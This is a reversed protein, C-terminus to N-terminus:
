QSALIRHSEFKLALWMSRRYFITPVDFSLQLPLLTIVKEPHVNLEKFICKSGKVIASTDIFPM